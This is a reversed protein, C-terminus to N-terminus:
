QVLVDSTVVENYKLRITSTGKRINPAVGYSVNVDFIAENEFFFYAEGNKDSVGDRKISGADKSISITAGPIREGTKADKVVVTLGCGNLDDSCSSFCPLILCIFLFASFIKLIKTKM